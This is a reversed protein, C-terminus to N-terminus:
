RIPLRHVEGRLPVANVAEIWGLSRRRSFFIEFADVQLIAELPLANGFRCDHSFGIVIVLEADKERISHHLPDASNAM